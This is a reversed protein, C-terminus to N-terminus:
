AQCSHESIHQEIKQAKRALKRQLFLALDSSTRLTGRRENYRAARTRVVQERSRVRLATAEARLDTLTQCTM